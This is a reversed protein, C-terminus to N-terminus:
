KELRKLFTASQGKDIILLKVTNFFNPLYYISYKSLNWVYNKNLNNTSEDGLIGKIVRNPSGFEQNIRKVLEPSQQSLVFYITQIKKNKGRYHIEKVIPVNKKFKLTGNIYFVGLEYNQIKVDNSISFEDIKSNFLLSDLNCIKITDYDPISFKLFCIIPILYM